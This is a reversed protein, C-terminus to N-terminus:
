QVGATVSHTSIRERTDFTQSLTAATGANAATWGLPSYATINFLPTPMQSSKLSIFRGTGDYTQTFTNAGLGDTYSTLHASLDYTYTQPHVASCGTPTCTQTQETLVRGMPDYATILKQTLFGTVPAAGSMQCPGVQTWEATLHGVANAPASAGNKDYVFCTTLGASSSYAGTSTKATLRNLADYSYTTVRGPRAETKIKLNGNGDYGGGCTGDSNWIGYCVSGSEPNLSTTLRGLLDYGFTRLRPTDGTTGQQTVGILKSQGNYSYTTTLKMPAASTGLEDVETLDGFGNRTRGWRRGSEDTTTVLPGANTYTVTTGDQNTKLFPRDAADYETCVGPVAGTAPATYLNSTCYVREHADRQTDVAVVSSGSGTQTRTTRGMGDVFIDRVLAPSPSAATVSHTSYPAASKSCTAGGQDTYCLSESGGDPYSVLTPRGLLDYAYSRMHQTDTPGTANGDEESILWDTAPDFQYWHNIGGLTTQSPHVGTADYFTQKVNGNGDVSQAVEGSANYQASTTVADGAPTIWRSSACHAGLVGGETTCPQSNYVDFYNQTNSILAGKEDVVNENTVLDLKNLSAYSPSSQWAYQFTTNRQYGAIADKEQDSALEPIVTPRMAMQPGACNGAGPQVLTEGPLYPRTSSAMLVGDVYEEQTLPLPTPDSLVVNGFFDGLGPAAAMQFATTRTERLVNGDGDLIQMSSEAPQDGGPGNYYHVEKGPAREYTEQPQTITTITPQFAYTWTRTTTLDNIARSKIVRAKTTVAGPATSPLRATTNQWTYTYVAGTPATLRTLQGYNIAPADGPDRDDYEFSWATGNPLVLSQLMRVKPTIIVNPNAATPYPAIEAPGGMAQFNTQIPVDVYCFTYNRSTSGQGPLALRTVLTTPRPGTCLSSDSIVTPYMPLSRGASDTFVGEEELLNDQDFVPNSTITMKNGYVDSMMVSSEPDFPAHSFHTVGKSDIVGGTDPPPPAGYQPNYASSLVSRYSTSDVSKWIGSSLPGGPESHLMVHEGGDSTYIAPVVASQYIPPGDADCEYGATYSLFDLYLDEDFSFWPGFEGNTPSALVWQNTVIEDQCPTTDRGIPGPCSDSYYVMYQGTSYRLSYHLSLDGKQDFSALPIHLSLHGSYADITDFDGLQYAHGDVIGTGQGVGQGWVCSSSLVMLAVFPLFHKHLTTV